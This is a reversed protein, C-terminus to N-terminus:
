NALNSILYSSFNCNISYYIRLIIFPFLLPSDALKLIDDRPIRSQGEQVYLTHIFVTEMSNSM